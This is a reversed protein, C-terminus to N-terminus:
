WLSCQRPSVPDSEEKEVKSKGNAPKGGEKWRGTEKKM